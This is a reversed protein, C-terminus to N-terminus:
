ISPGELEMLVPGSVRGTAKTRCNSRSLELSSQRLPQMYTEITAEWSEIIQRQHESSQKFESAPSSQMEMTLSENLMQVSFM